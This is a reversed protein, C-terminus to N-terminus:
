AGTQNLIHVFAEDARKYKELLLAACNGERSLGYLSLLYGRADTLAGAETSLLAHARLESIRAALVKRTMGTAKALAESTMQGEDLLALMIAKRHQGAKSPLFLQRVSNITDV